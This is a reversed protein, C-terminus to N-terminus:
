DPPRQKANADEVAKRLGLQNAVNNLYHRQEKLDIIIHDLRDRDEDHWKQYLQREERVLTAFLELTKNNRLEFGAQVAGLTDSFTKVMDPITKTERHWSLFIVAAACVAGIGNTVIATLITTLDVTYGQGLLRIPM